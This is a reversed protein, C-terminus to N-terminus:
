GASLAAALVDVVSRGPAHVFFHGGAVVQVGRWRDSYTAWAEVEPVTAVTDDTGALATLPARVAGPARATATM